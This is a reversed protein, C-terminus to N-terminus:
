NARKGKSYIAVKQSHNNKGPTFYLVIQMVRQNFIVFVVANMM